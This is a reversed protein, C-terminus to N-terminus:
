WYCSSQFALDPCSLKVLQFLSLGPLNDPKACVSTFMAALGAVVKAAKIGESNEVAEKMNACVTNLDM